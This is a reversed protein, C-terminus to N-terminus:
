QAAPAPDVPCDLCNPNPAPAPDPTPNPNPKPKPNPDPNPHHRRAQRAAAEGRKGEEVAALARAEAEREEASLAAVRAEEIWMLTCRMRVWEEAVPQPLRLRGEGGAASGAM